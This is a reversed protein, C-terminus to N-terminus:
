LVIQAKCDQAKGNPAEHDEKRGEEENGKAKKCGHYHYNPHSINDVWEHL